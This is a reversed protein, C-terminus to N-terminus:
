LTNKIKESQYVCATKFLCVSLYLSWFVVFCWLELKVGNGSEKTQNKWSLEGFLVMWIRLSSRYSLDHKSFFSLCLCVPLSLSLSGPYQSTQGPPSGFEACLSHPFSTLCLSLSVSVRTRRTENRAEPWRCRRPAFRRLRPRHTEVRPRVHTGLPDRCSWSLPVSSPAWVPGFPNLFGTCFYPTIGVM